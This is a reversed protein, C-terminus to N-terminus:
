HIALDTTVMVYQSHPRLSNYHKNYYGADYIQARTTVEETAQQKTWKQQVNSPKKSNDEDSVRQLRVHHKSQPAYNPNRECSLIIHKHWTSGWDQKENLWDHKKVLEKHIVDFANNARIAVSM